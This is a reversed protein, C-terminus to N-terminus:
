PRAKHVCRRLSRTNRSRRRVVIANRYIECRELAGASSQVMAKAISASGAQDKDAAAAYVEAGPEGDAFTLYLSIGAALTTKDNKRPVEIWAQRYRRTGDWRKWGFLPRLIEDQEWDM